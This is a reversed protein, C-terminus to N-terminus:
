YLDFPESYVYYSSPQMVVMIGVRYPGSPAQPVFAAFFDDKTASPYVSWYRLACALNEGLHQTIPIWKGAAQMEVRIRCFSFTWVKDSENTIVIQARRTGDQATSIEGRRISLEGTIDPETISSSCAAVAAVLVLTLLKLFFSPLTFLRRAPAAPQAPGSLPYKPSFMKM